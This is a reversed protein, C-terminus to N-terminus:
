FCTITVFLLISPSSKEGYATKASLYFGVVTESIISSFCIKCFESIPISNVHSIQGLSAAAKPCCIRFATTGCIAFPMVSQNHSYFVCQLLGGPDFPFQMLNQTHAVNELVDLIEGAASSSPDEGDPPEPPVSSEVPQVVQAIRDPSIQNSPDASENNYNLEHKSYVDIFSKM